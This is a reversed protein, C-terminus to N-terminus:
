FAFQFLGSFFATGFLFAPVWSGLESDAAQSGVLNDFGVFYSDMGYVEYFSMKFGNFVPYIIFVAMLIVQPAIFLYGSFPNEISTFKKKKKENM